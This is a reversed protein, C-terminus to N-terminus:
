HACHSRVIRQKERGENSNATQIFYEFPYYYTEKVFTEEYSLHEYALDSLHCFDQRHYCFLFYLINSMLAVFVSMKM